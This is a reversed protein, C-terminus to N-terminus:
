NRWGDSKWKLADKWDGDAPATVTATAHGDCYLVNVRGRHRSDDVASMVAHGWQGMGTERAVADVFLVVESEDPMSGMAYHRPRGDADLYANMKFSKPTANTFIKPGHWSFGACQFISLRRIVDDCELYDPLRCFWAPSRGSDEIGCNGKAPLRQDWDDAYQLAALGVQRLNNRCACAKASRLGMRLAPFLMGSLASLVALAVLLEALTWASRARNM